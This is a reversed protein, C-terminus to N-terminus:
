KEEIKVYEKVMYNEIADRLDRKAKYSNADLVKLLDKYADNQDKLQSIYLNYEKIQEENAAIKKKLEEKEEDISVTKELLENELRQIKELSKKIFEKTLSDDDLGLDVKYITVLLSQKDNAIIVWGHQNVYVDVPNTSHGIVGSYIKKCSKYLKELEEQYKNKYSDLFPGSNKKVREHYREFCHNSINM